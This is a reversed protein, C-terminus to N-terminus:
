PNDIWVVTQTYWIIQDVMFDTNYARLFVIHIFSDKWVWDPVLVWGQSFPQLSQRKPLNSDLKVSESIKFSGCYRSFYNTPNNITM